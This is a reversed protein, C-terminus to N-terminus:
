FFWDDVPMILKFVIRYSTQILLYDEINRGDDDPQRDIELAIIRRTSSHKRKKIVEKRAQIVVVM